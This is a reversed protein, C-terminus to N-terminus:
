YFSVFSRLYRSLFRVKFLCGRNIQVAQHFTKRFEAFEKNKFHCRAKELYRKATYVSRFRLYQGPLISPDFLLDPAKEVADTIAQKDTRLSEPQRYKYVVPESISRGNFLAFLHAFLVFDENCKITEPFSLRKFCNRHMVVAGITPGVGKGAILRRFGEERDIVASEPLLAKVRGKTNVSYHGAYIYDCLCDDQRIAREFVDLADTRLQDDADLFYLYEGKAIRVGANRAAGPGKNEQSFFSILKKNASVYAEIIEPTKDKSGDDIVIIEYDNRNQGLASDIARSVFNYANFCPIIISYRLYDM